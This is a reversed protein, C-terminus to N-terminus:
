TDLDGHLEVGQVNCKKENSAVDEEEVKVESNQLYEGFQYKYEDRIIVLAALFIILFALCKFIKKFQPRRWNKPNLKKYNIEAKCIKIQSIKKFINLM